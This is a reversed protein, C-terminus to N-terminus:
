PLWPAGRLGQPEAWRVDSKAWGRSGGSGRLSGLGVMAEAPIRTRGTEAATVPERPGTHWKCLPPDRGWGGAGPTVAPPMRAQGVAKSLSGSLHSM